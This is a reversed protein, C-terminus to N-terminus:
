NGHAAFLVFVKLPPPSPSNEQPLSLCCSAMGNFGLWTFGHTEASLTVLMSYIEFAATEGSAWELLFLSEDLMQPDRVILEM